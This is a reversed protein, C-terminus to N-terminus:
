FIRLYSALCANENLIASIFAMHPKKRKNPKRHKRPPPFNGWHLKWVWKAQFSKMEKWAIKRNVWGSRASPALGSDARHGQAPTQTRRHLFRQGIERPENEWSLPKTTWDMCFRGATPWWEAARGVYFSYNLFSIGKWEFNIENTSRLVAKLAPPSATCEGVAMRPIKWSPLFSLAPFIRANTCWSVLVLINMVAIDAFIAFLCFCEYGSLAWQHSNILLQTINTCHLIICCPFIPSTYACEKHIFRQSLHQTLFSLELPSCIIHYSVGM